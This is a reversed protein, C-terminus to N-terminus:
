SFSNYVFNKRIKRLKGLTLAEALSAIQTAKLAQLVLDFEVAKEVLKIFFSQRSMAQFCTACSDYAERDGAALLVLQGEFAEAKSGHVIVKLFQMDIHHLATEIGTSTIADITSMEVYIKGSVLEPMLRAVGSLGFVVQFSNLSNIIRSRTKINVQQVVNADSICSFTIQARTVVEVPSKVVEAGANKFPITKAPTRNYVIVEHGSNILNKVLCRGMPGLGIFGIKVGTPTICKSKLTETITLLDFDDTEQHDEALMPPEFPPEDNIANAASSLPLAENSDSSSELSEDDPGDAYQLM